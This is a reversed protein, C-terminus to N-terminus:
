MRSRRWHAMMPSATEAYTMGGPAARTRPVTSACCSSLFSLSPRYEDRDLVRGMPLHSRRSASMSEWAERRAVLASPGYRDLVYLWFAIAMGLPPSIMLVPMWSRHWAERCQTVAKLSTELAKQLASLSSV